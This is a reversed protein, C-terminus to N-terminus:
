AGVSSAWWRARCSSSARAPRSRSSSREPRSQLRRTGAWHAESQLDREDFVAVGVATTEDVLSPYGVVGGREVRRPLDGFNWEVAGHAVLEPAIRAVLARIEGRVAHRLSALDRGAARVHGAADVVAIRVRLAHPIADLDIMEPTVAAGAVRSFGAAITPALAGASSYFRLCKLIVFWDSEM